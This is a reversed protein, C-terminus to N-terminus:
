PTSTQELWARHVHLYLEELSVENGIVYSARRRTRDSPKQAGILQRAESKSLGRYKMLRELRVEERADVLVVVDFEGGDGEPV